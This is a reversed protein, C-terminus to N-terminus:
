AAATRWSRSRPRSLRRAALSAQRDGCRHGGRAAAKAAQEVAADDKARSAVARARRAAAEVAEVEDLGPVDARPQHVRLQGRAARARLQRLGRPLPYYGLFDNNYGFQKAQADATQNMPDFAPAGPLVPDGWRILLQPATAPRWRCTRPSPRRWARSLRLQLRRAGGPEHAHRRARGDGRDHRLGEARDPPEDPREGLELLPQNSSRNSGIDDGDSSWSQNTPEQDLANEHESQRRTPSRPWTM